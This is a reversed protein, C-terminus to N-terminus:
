LFHKLTRVFHDRLHRRILYARKELLIILKTLFQPDAVIVNKTM